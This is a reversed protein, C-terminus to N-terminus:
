AEWPQKRNKIEALKGQVSRFLHIAVVVDEPSCNFEDATEKVDAWDKGFVEDIEIFEACEACEYIDRNITKYPIALIKNEVFKAPRHCTGCEIPPKPQKQDM